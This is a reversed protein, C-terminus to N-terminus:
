GVSVNHVTSNHLTQKDRYGGNKIVFIASYIFPYIILILAIIIMLLRFWHIKDIEEAGCTCKHNDVGEADQFIHCNGKHEM